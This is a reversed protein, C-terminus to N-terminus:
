DDEHIYSITAKELHSIWIRTLQDDSYHHSHM